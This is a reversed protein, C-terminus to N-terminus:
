KFIHPCFAPTNLQEFNKLSESKKCILIFKSVSKVYYSNQESLLFIYNIESINKYASSPLRFNEIFLMLSNKVGKRTRLINRNDKDHRDEGRETYIFKGSM